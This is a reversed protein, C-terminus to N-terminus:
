TARQGSRLSEIYADPDRVLNTWINEFTRRNEFHSAQILRQREEDTRAAAYELTQGEGRWAGRFIVPAGADVRAAAGLHFVVDDYIGAFLYHDDHVNSRLLPAFGMGHRHLAFAYGFGTDFEGGYRELFLPWDPLEETDPTITFRPKTVEIFERACFLCAPMPLMTDGNEARLMAAVPVSDRTRELLHDVWGPHVPFSDVHLTCLHTAGDEIALDVLRDLYYGNETALARGPMGKVYRRSEEADEYAPSIEFIQVNPRREVLRRYESGLRNVSGYIMYPVDTCEEIKRLHLELLPRMRDSVLYVVVIGLKV